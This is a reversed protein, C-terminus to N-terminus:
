GAEEVAIVRTDGSMAAKAVDLNITDLSHTHLLGDRQEIYGWDGPELLPNYVSAFNLGQQAGKKVSLQAQAAAIALAETEVAIKATPTPRKGWPGDWYTPSTPDDDTVLVIGGPVESTGWELAVGNFIDRRSVRRHTDILVGGAGYHLNFAPTEAAYDLRQIQWVGDPRVFVEVGIATAFDGIASWRSTGPSVILGSPVATTPVGDEVSWEPAEPLAEEVLSQIAAVYTTTPSWPFVVPLDDVRQGDDAAVIDAFCKKQYSTIDQIVLRAIVAYEVSRNLFEVGKEIILRSSTNLADFPGPNAPDRALRLSATRRVNRSRDLSLSGSIVPLEEGDVTVRTLTKHSFALANVFQQSAAIM